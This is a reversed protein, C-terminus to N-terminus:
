SSTLWPVLGFYLIPLETKTNGLDKNTAIRPDKALSSIIQQAPRDSLTLSFNFNNGLEPWLEIGAPRALRVGM